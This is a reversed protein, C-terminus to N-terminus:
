AEKAPTTSPAVEASAEEIPTSTFLVGRGSARRPRPRRARGHVTVDYRRDLGGVEPHEMARALDGDSTVVLLGESAVDLRGM